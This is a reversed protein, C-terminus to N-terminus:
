WPTTTELEKLLRDLSEVYKPFRDDDKQKTKVMLECKNLLRRFNIEIRSLGM